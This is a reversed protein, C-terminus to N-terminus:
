APTYGRPMRSDRGSRRIITGAHICHRRSRSWMRLPKHMIGLPIAQPHEEKLRPDLDSTMDTEIFGPAVANVTVNRPALERALAKTLGILGAKSSVYPVEGANGMEGVVSSVNIIRGTRARVTCAHRYTIRIGAPYIARGGGRHAPAHRGPQPRLAPPSVAFRGCGM